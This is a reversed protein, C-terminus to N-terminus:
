LKPWFYERNPRLYQGVNQIMIDAEEPGRSGPLYPIPSTRSSNHIISDAIEWAEKLEDKGVFSSHDGNVVDLILSEYAEPIRSNRFRTAYTLDLEAIESRLDFTGPKKMNLKMYIAEQPQVRIVLENRVIEEANSFYRTSAPTDKLQIRIEAKSENLFKGCKLIFPIGNWRVM